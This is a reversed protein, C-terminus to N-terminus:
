AKYFRIGQLELILFYYHFTSRFLSFIFVCLSVSEPDMQCYQLFCVFM